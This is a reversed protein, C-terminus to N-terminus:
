NALNIGAGAISTLQFNVRQVVREIVEFTKTQPKNGRWAMGVHEQDGPRHGPVHPFRQLTGVIRTWLRLPDNRNARTGAVASYEGSTIRDVSSHFLDYRNDQVNASARWGRHIKQFSQQCQKPMGLPSAVR